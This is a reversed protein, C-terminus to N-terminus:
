AGTPSSKAKGGEVAVLIATYAYGKAYRALVSGLAADHESVKQITRSIREADLAFVADRLEACLSSPLAAIAEPRLEEAQGGPLAREAEAHRYRVGLHREMCEFIEDPRYPKRLYDDFGAAMVDSRKSDYGSATVAAIKVDRGGELDRIRRAAAMGDMVPMRLDMWIFQPRCERFAEVGQEGNGALRVQFGAQRLLRELVMSNEPEDEVVLVRYEPQGAELGLIRKRGDAPKAESEQAREVPLEVRFCSGRGPSSEVEIRGGMLELVQRTIALGLGTGKRYQGTAVQEFPKFIREQDEIAIGTGTDEVEFRLLVQEGTGAPRGDLRVTISGRETYKVANGVLNILVERLRAADTRVYRPIEASEVLVLELHKEAARVQMMDAVDQMLGKLDCPAIELVTRGSEIKAADLVDNIMTLLHEGSRNIIDLDRRQDESASHERLINSFGLIANLPTRLEHSMNALFASKARNAQEAQDRAEVLEATREDILKQLRVGRERLARVRLKYAGFLLGAGALIAGGRSWWTMWWPPAISIGLSAEQNSWTRGDTSSQVRLRYKAPRLGTYRVSRNRSDVETWQSERGEL